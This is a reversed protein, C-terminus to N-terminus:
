RQQIADTRSGIEIEAILSTIARCAQWLAASAAVKKERESRQHMCNPVQSKKDKGDATMDSVSGSSGQSEKSLSSLGHQQSNTLWDGVLNQGIEGLSEHVSKVRHELCQIETEVAVAASPMSTKRIGIGLVTKAKNPVGTSYGSSESSAPVSIAPSRVHNHYLHQQGLISTSCASSLPPYCSSPTRQISNLRGWYNQCAQSLQPTTHSSWLTNPINAGRAYERFRDHARASSLRQLKQGLLQTLYQDVILWAALTSLVISSSNPFVRQLNTLLKEDNHEPLVERFIALEPTLLHLNHYSLVDLIRASATIANKLRQKRMNELGVMEHTRTRSIAPSTQVPSVIMSSGCNTYASRHSRPSSFPDDLQRGSQSQDFDSKTDVSVRGTKSSIPTSNQDSSSFDTCISSRPLPRRTVTIPASVVTSMDSFPTSDRPTDWPSFRSAQSTEHTPTTPDGSTRSTSIKESGSLQSLLATSSPPRPIQVLKPKGPGVLVTALM